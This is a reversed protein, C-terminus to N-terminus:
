IKKLNPARMRQLKDDFLKNIEVFYCNYHLMYLSSNYLDNLRMIVYM